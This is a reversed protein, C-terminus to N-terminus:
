FHFEESHFTVNHAFCLESVEDVMAHPGCTLAIVSPRGAPAAKAGVAEEFIAGLAPRRTQVQAQIWQIADASIDAFPPVFRAEDAAENAHGPRRTDFLAIHFMSNPNLRALPYFSEAFNNFIAPEKSCWVLQVRRIRGIGAGRGAIAACARAYLDVFISHLPTIGIGGAVLLVTESDLYNVPRGYPGDVRVTPPAVSVQGPVSAVMHANAMRAVDETWAKGGLSKIHFTRVRSSPASSITIPHWETESVAPINIFAYQGAFHDLFPAQSADTARLKLRTVGEHTEVAVVPAPVSARGLRVLRDLMWLVMGGAAYYWFGWAHLVAVLFFVIGFYHTYQFLEYHTRRCFVAVAVMVTVLVWALEAAM